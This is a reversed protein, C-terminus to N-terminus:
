SVCWVLIMEQKLRGADDLKPCIRILNAPLEGAIPLYGVGLLLAADEQDAQETIANCITHHAHTISAPSPTLTMLM